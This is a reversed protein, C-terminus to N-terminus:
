AVEEATAMAQVADLDDLKFGLRTMMKFIADWGDESNDNAYIEDAARYAQDILQIHKNM